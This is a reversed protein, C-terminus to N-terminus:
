LTLWLLFVSLLDNSLNSCNLYKHVARVFWFEIWSSILLLNFDPLAQQWETCFRKDELKRDLFIFIFIYVVTINGTTKYPHSVQDGVNLSSCLNLTDSFLTNFFINPGLLFSTVSSQFFSCLSSSLSRYQEGFIKRHDFWSSHSPRPIYRTHPLPSAYVPNQHPFRLSLVVQFVCAYISPYYSFPDELLPILIM